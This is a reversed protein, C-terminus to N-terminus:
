TWTSNALAHDSKGAVKRQYKAASKSKVKLLELSAKRRRLALSAPTGSLAM